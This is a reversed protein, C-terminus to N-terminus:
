ATKTREDNRVVISFTFWLCEIPIGVFRVAEGRKTPVFHFYCVCQEFDFQKLAIGRDPCMIQEFTAAFPGRRDARMMFSM